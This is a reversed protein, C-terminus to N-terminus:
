IDTEFNYKDMNMQLIEIKNELEEVLEDRQVNTLESEWEIVDSSYSDEKVKGEKINLKKLFSVLSKMESLKYIMSIRDLNAKSIKAKIEVLNEISQNLKQLQEEINYVPSNGSIYSNHTSIRKQIDKIRRVLKNKESLAKILKM